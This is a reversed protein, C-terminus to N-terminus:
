DHEECGKRFQQVVGLVVAQASLYTLHHMCKVCALCEADCLPNKDALVLIADSIATDEDFRAEDIMPCMCWAPETGQTPCLKDHGKRNGVKWARRM